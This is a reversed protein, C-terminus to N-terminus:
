DNTDVGHISCGMDALERAMQLEMAEADVRRTAPRAGSYLDPRLRVGWKYVSRSERYGVLHQIFRGRPPHWSQGVYLCTTEAHPPRTCGELEIVYVRLFDDHPVPPFALEGRKRWADVDDQLVWLDGEPDTEVLRPPPIRHAPVIRESLLRDWEGSDLDDLRTVPAGARPEYVEEDVADM